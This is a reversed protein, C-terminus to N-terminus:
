LVTKSFSDTGENSPLDERYSPNQIIKLVNEYEMCPIHSYKIIVNEYEM